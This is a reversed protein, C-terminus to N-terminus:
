GVAMAVAITKAAGGLALVLCWGLLARSMAAQGRLGMFDLIVLRAKLMALGLVLSAGAAAGGFRVAVVSAGTLALLFLWSRALRRLSGDTM